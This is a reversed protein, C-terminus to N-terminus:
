YYRLRSDVILVEDEQVGNLEMLRNVSVHYLRAISYMDEGPLVTHYREANQLELKDKKTYLNINSYILKGTTFDILRTPDIPKGMFRVEFHLHSGFSHGTNGGRGIFSGAQVYDGAKVDIHSLHAYYTELGNPHRIIVLNGYSDNWRAFRVVGEFSCNVPDGEELDIDVGYHMRRHRKGFKSTIHGNFPHVYDCGPSYALTLMVTDRFPIAEPSWYHVTSTDFSSYYKGGPVDGGDPGGKEGWGTASAQLSFFFFLIGSLTKLKM